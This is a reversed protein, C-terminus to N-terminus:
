KLLVVFVVVSTHERVLAPHLLYFLCPNQICIWNRVKDDVLRTTKLLDSLNESEIEKDKCNPIIINESIIYSIWLKQSLNPLSYTIAISNQYIIYRNNHECIRLNKTDKISVLRMERRQLWVKRRMLKRTYPWNKIFCGLSVEICKVWFLFFIIDASGCASLM